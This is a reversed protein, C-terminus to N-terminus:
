AFLSPCRHWPMPFPSLPGFFLSHFSCDGELHDPIVVDGKVFSSIDRMGTNDTFYLRLLTVGAPCADCDRPPVYKVWTLYCGRSSREFEDLQCDVAHQQLRTSTKYAEVDLVEVKVCGQFVWFLYADFEHVDWLFEYIFVIQCLAHSM